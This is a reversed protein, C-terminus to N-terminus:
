RAPAAIPKPFCVVDLQGHMADIRLLRAADPAPFGNDFAGVAKARTPKLTAAADCHARIKELVGQREAPDGSADLADLERKVSVGHYFLASEYWVLLASGNEPVSKMLRAEYAAGAADDGAMAAAEFLRDYGQGTSDVYPKFLQLAAAAAKPDGTRAQSLLALGRRFARSPATFHWVLAGGVAVAVLLVAAASSSSSGGAVIEPPPVSEAPPPPVPEPEIPPISPVPVPSAPVPAPSPEPSIPEARWAPDINEDSSQTM